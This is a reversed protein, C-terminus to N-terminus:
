QKQILNELAKLVCAGIAIKWEDPDNMIKREWESTNLVTDRWATDKGESPVLLINWAGEGEGAWGRTKM